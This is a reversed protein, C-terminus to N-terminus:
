FLFTFHLRSVENRFNKLARIVDVFIISCADNKEKINKNLNYKCDYIM